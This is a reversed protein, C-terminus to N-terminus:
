SARSRAAADLHHIELCVTQLRRASQGKCEADLKNYRKSQMWCYLSSIMSHKILKLFARWSFEPSQRKQARDHGIGLEEGVSDITICRNAKIM